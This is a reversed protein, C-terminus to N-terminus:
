TPSPWISVINTKNQKLQFIWIKNIDLIYKSKNPTDLIFPTKTLNYGAISWCQLVKHGSTESYDSVPINFVIIKL